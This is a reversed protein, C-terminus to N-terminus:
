DTKRSHTHTLWWLIDERASRSLSMEGDFNGRHLTLATNTDAKLNKIHAGGYDVGQTFATMMGVLGAVQRISVQQKALISQAASCFKHKKDETLFVKM